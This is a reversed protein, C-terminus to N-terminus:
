RSDTAFDLHKFKAGPTLVEMRQLDNLVIRTPTESVFLELVETKDPLTSTTVAKGAVQSGNRLTVCIEYGHLCAVEIHDHLACDIPNRM